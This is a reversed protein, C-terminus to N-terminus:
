EGQVEIVEVDDVGVDDDDTDAGSWADLEECAEAEVEGVAHEAARGAMDDTEFIHDCGAVAGAPRVQAEVFVWVTDLVPDVGDFM